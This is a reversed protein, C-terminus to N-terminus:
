RHSSIMQTFQDDTHDSKDRVLGVQFDQLLWPPHGAGFWDARAQLILSLPGSVAAARELAHDALNYYTPDGTERARQQYALGLLALTDGEAPHTAVRGELGLVYRATNGSSLGAVLRTLVAQREYSAREGAALAAFRNGGAPGAFVGGFLLVVVAVGAAGLGLAITKKGM